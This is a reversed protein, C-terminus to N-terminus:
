FSKVMALEIGFDLQEEYLKYSLFYLIKIIITIKYQLM